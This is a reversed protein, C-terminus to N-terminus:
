EELDTRVAWNLGETMPAAEQQETAAPIVRAKTQYWLEAAQTSHESLFLFNFLVGFFFTQCLRIWGFPLANMYASMDIHFYHVQSASRLTFCASGTPYTCLFILSFYIAVSPLFFFSLFKRQNLLRREVKFLQPQATYLWCTRDSLWWIVSTGSGEYGSAMLRPSRSPDERDDRLYIVARCNWIAPHEKKARWKENECARWKEQQKIVKCFICIPNILELLIPAVSFETITM